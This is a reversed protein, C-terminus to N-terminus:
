EQIDKVIMNWAADYEVQLRVDGTCRNVPQWASKTGKLEISGLTPKNVKKEPGADEIRVRNVCCEAWVEASSPGYDGKPAVEFTKDQCAGLFAAQDVTVKMPRLTYNEVYVTLASYLATTSLCLM